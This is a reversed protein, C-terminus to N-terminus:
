RPAFRATTVSADRPDYGTGRSALPFGRVPGCIWARRLPHFGVVTAAGGVAVDEVPRDQLRPGAVRIPGDGFPVWVASAVTRRMEWRSAVSKEAPVAARSGYESERSPPM